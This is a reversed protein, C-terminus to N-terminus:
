DITIDKKYYKEMNEVVWNNAHMDVYFFSSLPDCDKIVVANTSPTRLISHGKAMCESFAKTRGYIMDDIIITSNFSKIGISSIILVLAMLGVSVCIEKFYKSEFIGLVRNQIMYGLTNFYAVMIFLILYFFQINQVRLEQHVTGYSYTCPLFSLIIIVLLTIPFLIPAKFAVKMKKVLSVFLPTLLILVPIIFTDFVTRGIMDFSVPITLVMAGQISIPTFNTIRLFNGPALVNIAFFTSFVVLLILVPWIFAKKRLFTYCVLGLFVSGLLIGTVYNTGALFIALALIIAFLVRSKNLLFRVVLGLLIMSMAFPVLYLLVGAYWYLGQAVSYMFTISIILYILGVIISQKLSIFNKIKSLSVFFFLTGAVYLLQFIFMLVNYANFSISLPNFTGLFITSFNGQWTQYVDATHRFGALMLNVFNFDKGAILDKIVNYNYYDDAVPYNYINMVLVPIIVALFLVLVIVLLKNKSIYTKLNKIAKKVLGLIYSKLFWM